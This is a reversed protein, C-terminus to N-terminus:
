RRPNQSGTELGMALKASWLRLKSAADRNEITAAENYTALLSDQRCMAQILRNRGLAHEITVAMKWGVAYWLGQNGFYSAMKDDIVASDAIQGDLIQLFFQDQSSLEQNFNEQEQNWESRDAPQPDADPGGAAALMAFGEGYAGIWRHLARIPTPLANWKEQVGAPPCSTAFGIHHLEHAVTNTFQAQSRHPDLYLFIAPNTETEFVFSNKLPKIVPYITAHITSDPPLYAFALAAAQELSAQKWAELTARLQRAQRRTEASSLFTQFSSDTFPRHMSAERKQLRIYGESRFLQQWDSDAIPGEKELIALAAEAEASNMTIRLRATQAPLM